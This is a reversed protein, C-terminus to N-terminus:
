GERREELLLDTSSLDWQVPTRPRDRFEEFAKSARLSVSGTQSTGIPAIRAIPRRRDTVIIEAGAEVARLHRSLHDKLEAIKVRTMAM